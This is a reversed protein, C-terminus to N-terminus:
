PPRSIPSAADRIQHPDNGGLGSMRIIVGGPVQISHLRLLCYALQRPDMVSVTSPLHLNIVLAQDVSVRPVNSHGVRPDVEDGGIDSAEGEAAARLHDASGRSQGCARHKM